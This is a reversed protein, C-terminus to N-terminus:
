AGRDMSNELCSYQVPNGNGQESTPISGPDGVNCASEKTDSGGPFGVIYTYIKLNSFAKLRCFSKSHLSYYLCLSKMRFRSSM